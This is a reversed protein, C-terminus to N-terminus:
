GQDNSRGGSRSAQHRKRPDVQCEPPRRGLILPAAVRDEGRAAAPGIDGLDERQDFRVLRVSLGDAVAHEALHRTASGVTDIDAAMTRGPTRVPPLAFAM